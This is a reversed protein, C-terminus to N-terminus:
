KFGEVFGRRRDDGFEEWIIISFKWNFGVMGTLGFLNIPFIDM